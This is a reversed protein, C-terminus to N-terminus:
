AIVRLAVLILVVIVGMSTTWVLSRLRGANALYCAAYAVRLAVFGWAAYLTTKSEPAEVHALIAFAAFLPFAEFSNQHAWYARQRWGTLEGQWARTRENEKTGFGKSKSLATLLFPMTGVLAIPLVVDTMAAVIADRRATSL